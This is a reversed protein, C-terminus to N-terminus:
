IAEYVEEVSFDSILLGNHDEMMSFNNKDPAGFFSKITSM